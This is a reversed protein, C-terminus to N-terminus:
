IDPFGGHVLDALVFFDLVDHFNESQLESGGVGIDALQTVPFQHDHRVLVVIAGMDFTEDDVKNVM